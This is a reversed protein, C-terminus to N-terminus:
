KHDPAPRTWIEIRRSKAKAAPSDDSIFWFKDNQIYYSFTPLAARDYCGTMEIVYDDPTSVRVPAIGAQITKDTFTYRSLAKATESVWLLYPTGAQLAGSPLVNGFSLTM